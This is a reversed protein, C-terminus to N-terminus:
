TTKDSQGAVSGNETTISCTELIALDRNFLCISDPSILIVSGILLIVKALLRTFISKIISPYKAKGAVPELIDSCLGPSLRCHSRINYKM